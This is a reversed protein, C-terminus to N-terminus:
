AHLPVERLQTAPSGPELTTDMATEFTPEREEAAFAIADRDLREILAAARGNLLNGLLVTPIAVILGLQTTVLAESIGGSLMKPDGTGFETIVEFTGIMGTVTGLLGLLPAVAAIVLIAAGFRDVRASEDIIAIDTADEIAQRGRTAVASLSDQLRGPARTEALLLIGARLLVLLGALLGLGMIVYGVIGGARLTDGWTKVTPPEVRRQSGEFVFADVADPVAGSALAAAEAHEVHLQFAGDGVPLLSGSGRESVGWAAVEGLRVVDGDVKTGDALFFSGPETQWRKGADIRDMAVSFATRLAETQADLGEAAALEDRSLSSSAQVLTSGLADSADSSGDAARDTALLLDEAVDAAASASLLQGELGAVDNTLTELAAVNDQELQELRSELATREAALYAYERQYAADLPEAGAVLTLLLLSM